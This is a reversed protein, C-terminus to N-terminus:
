EAGHGSANVSAIQRETHCVPSVDLRNVDLSRLRVYRVRDYACMRDCEASGLRPLFHRRVRNGSKKKTEGDLLSVYVRSRM